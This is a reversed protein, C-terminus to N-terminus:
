WIVASDDREVRVGTLYQRHRACGIVVRVDEASHGVSSFILFDMVIRPVWKEVACGLCDIGGARGPFWQHRDGSKGFSEDLRVRHYVTGAGIGVAIVGPFAIRDM